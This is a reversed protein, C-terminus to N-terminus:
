NRKEIERIERNHRLFSYSCCVAGAFFVPVFGLFLWDYGSSGNIPNVGGYTSLLSSASMYLAGLLDDDRMLRVEDIDM